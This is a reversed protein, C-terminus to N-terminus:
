RQGNRLVKVSVLCRVSGLPATDSPIAPETYSVFGGTVSREKGHQAREYFEARVAVRRWIWYNVGISCNLGNGERNGTTHAYGASVHPVMKQGPRIQFHLIGNLAISSAGLSVLPEVDVVAGVRELILLEGGAFVSGYPIPRKQFM